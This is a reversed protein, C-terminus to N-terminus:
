QVRTSDPETIFEELVQSQELLEFGLRRAIMVSWHKVLTGHLLLHKERNMRKLTM